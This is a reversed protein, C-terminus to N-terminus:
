IKKLAELKNKDALFSGQGTFPLAKKTKIKRFKLM